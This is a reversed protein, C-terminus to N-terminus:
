CASLAFIVADTRFTGVTRPLVPGTVGKTVTETVPRSVFRRVPMTVGTTVGSRVSESVARTVLETVAVTVAVRVWDSVSVTVAETVCVSVIGGEDNGSKGRAKDKM